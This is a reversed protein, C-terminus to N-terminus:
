VIYPTKKPLNNPQNWWAPMSTNYWTSDGKYNSYNDYKFFEFESDVSEFNTNRAFAMDIYCETPADDYGTGSLPRFNGTDRLVKPPILTEKTTPNVYLVDFEYILYNNDVINFCIEDTAQDAIKSFLLKNDDVASAPITAGPKPAVLDVLSYAKFKPPQLSYVSHLPFAPQAASPQFNWLPTGLGDTVKIKSQFGGYDATVVFSLLIFKTFGKVLDPTMGRPTDIKICHPQNKTPAAQLKRSHGLGDQATPDQIVPQNLPADSDNDSLSASTVDVKFYPVWPTPIYRPNCGGCIHYKENSGFCDGGVYQDMGDPCGGSKCTVRGLCIKDTPSTPNTRCAECVKYNISDGDMVCDSGIWDKTDQPLNNCYDDSGLCTIRGLCHVKNGGSGECRSSPGYAKVDCIINKANGNSADVIAAPCQNSSQRITTKQDRDMRCNNEDKPGLSTVCASTPCLGTKTSCYGHCPHTSNAGGAPDCATADGAKIKFVISGPTPVVSNVQSNFDWKYCTTPNVNCSPPNGYPTYDCVVGKPQGSTSDTMSIPCKYSEPSSVTTSFTNSMVCTRDSDSLFYPSTFGNKVCTNFPCLGTNASCGFHCNGGTCTNAGSLIAPVSSVYQQPSNFSWKWCVNEVPPSPPAIPPNPPPTECSGDSDAGTSKWRCQREKCPVIGPCYQCGDACTKAKCGGGCINYSVKDADEFCINGVLNAVNADPNPVSSRLVGMCIESGGNFTCDALSAATRFVTLDCYIKNASNVIAPPCNNTVDRVTDLRNASFKCKVQDPGLGNDACSAFKCRGHQRDCMGVCFAQDFATCTMTLGDSDRRNSFMKANWNWKWCVNNVPPDPIRRCAGANTSQFLRRGGGSSSTDWM